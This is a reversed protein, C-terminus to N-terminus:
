DPDTRLQAMRRRVREAYEAGPSGTPESSGGFAGSSPSAMADVSRELAALAEGDDAELEGIWRAILDIDGDSFSQLGSELDRLQDGDVGVALAVDELTRDAAIRSARLLPELFGGRARRAALRQDVVAILRARGEAPAPVHSSMLADVLGSARPSLAGCWKIPLGTPAITPEADVPDEGQLAKQLERLDAGLDLELGVDEENNDNEYM